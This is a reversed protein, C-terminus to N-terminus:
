CPTLTHPHTFIPKPNLLKTLFGGLFFLPLIRLSSPTASRTRRRTLARRAGERARSDHESQQERRDGHAIRWPRRAPVHRRAARQRPACRPARARCRPAQPQHAVGGAPTRSRAPTPSRRTTSGARRRSCRSTTGCRFCRCQPWRTTTRSGAPPTGGTARRADRRAAPLAGGRHGARGGHQWCCAGGPPQPADRCASPTAHQAHPQTCCPARASACPSCALDHPVALSDLAAHPVSSGCLAPSQPELPARPVFDTSIVKCVHQAFNRARRECAKLRQTCPPTAAPASRAPCTPTSSASRLGRASRPRRARRRARARCALLPRRAFFHPEAARRGGRRRPPRASRPACRPSSPPRPPPSSRPASRTSSCASRCSRRRGEWVGRLRSGRTPWPPSTTRQSRACRRSSPTSRPSAAAASHAPEPCAPRLTTGDATANGQVSVGGAAMALAMHDHKLM